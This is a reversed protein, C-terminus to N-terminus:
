RYRGGPMPPPRSPDPLSMSPPPPEKWGSAKAIRELWVLTEKHRRKNAESDYHGVVFLLILGGVILAGITGM